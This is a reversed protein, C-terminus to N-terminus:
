YLKTKDIPEIKLYGNDLLKVTHNNRLDIAGSNKLRDELPINLWPFLSEERTLNNVHIEM